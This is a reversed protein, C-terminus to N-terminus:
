FQRVVREEGHERRNLVAEEGQEHDRKQRNRNKQLFVNACKGRWLKLALRSLYTYTHTYIHM